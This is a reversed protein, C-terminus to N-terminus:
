VSTVNAANSAGTSVILTRYGANVDLYAPDIHFVITKNKVAADTTFSVADAQRVLTDSADTDLNAWIPVANALAKAGAGAVNTAQQLTIAVTAANGQSVNVIVTAFTANKLNVARGARGAADAAAPLVKVLKTSTAFNRKPM